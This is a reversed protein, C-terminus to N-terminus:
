DNPFEEKLAAKHHAVHQEADDLLSKTVDIKQTIARHVSSLVHNIVYSAQMGAPITTLMSIIGSVTTAGTVWQEDLEPVKKLLSEVVALQEQLPPLQAVFSKVRNEATRLGGLLHSYRAARERIASEAANLEEITM